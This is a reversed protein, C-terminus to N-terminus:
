KMAEINNEIFKIEDKSLGYKKYLQQDIEKVSKTWDIDSNESFDQLPVYKWKNSPNNQTVKLIGVMARTFKSKVYKLCAVAEREKNFKGISLFTQTHGEGPYGLEPYGIIPTKDVEGIAGSGNSNPLLVKYKDLNEHPEIYERKIYKVVRANNERGLLCVYEEGDKPEEDFFIEPLKEFANTTIDYLHGKSVKQKVEPYDEHLKNTFSYSFSSYMISSIPIFEKDNVKKFTTRLEEHPTYVGIKGFNKKSDRYTIAIGGTISTNPFIKKGDPEYGVVKLHPDNLMKKNWSKPTKGANFLFRGPTVFTVKEALKFSEDMFYNYIPKDSTNKIEEQYPPNGIVVDFKMNDGYINKLAEELNGNKVDKTLNYEVINEDSIGEFDSMIFNRAINYIINTPCVAYVQNEIIHKLRDHPDEIKDKLGKFLREITGTIFLGSKTYLDIFKTDENKFINPNEKELADIMYDVVPEPTYRQNTQQPPIYDFISEDQSTEFYNSLEHKKEMFKQISANFVPKNFFGLYEKEEGTSEDIYTFGDRLKQFEPISISTLEKFTEPEINEEFNDVTTNEDGYAMLFAPITRTFGRLHERVEDETTKKKKEERDELSEKTVKEFSENANENVNEYFKQTSRQIAKDRAEELEQKLTEDDSEDIKEQYSKHINEQENLIEDRASNVFNTFLDTMEKRKDRIKAKTYDSNDYINDLGSDAVTLFDDVIKQTEVIEKPFEDVYIKPGFLNDTESEVLEDPIDVKGREDVLPNTNVIDRKEVHWKNKEPPIKNLIDMVEQPAAFIRSINDFLLNSMFGQNVVERAKNEVPITLVDTAAIRYMSGEDDEALVPFFNLLERINEKSEDSTLPEVGSLNNAFEEYLVLTREPAFDFVYANEKRQLKGEADAYEHPNQSRFAAQFYLAPSKINSLILVGTWEPVTVGTTLQGCSLTITRDNEAIAKKVKEYSKGSAEADLAEDEFINEPDPYRKGDGAAIVVKYDKFVPHKRLLKEMAKVSNVRNFLWLTHKLEQRYETEAFPFRGSALNDLFQKVEDEYIFRNNPGVRFFENLDFTYDYNEEGIYKGEKIDEIVLNGMQYTFLNLQPLNAYPNSGISYDWNEKAKQEDAYTWNFIQESSFKGAELQKFPTGSLHLTFKRQVEDLARDTKVTDVGEHAEDIILLDWTREKIWRLKEYDGGAFKAGKLDQLSIFALLKPDKVENSIIYDMFEDYSLTGTQKLEDTGAVFKRSKDKHAIFKTFDEYWSNAVAPRNTVVLTSISDLRLMLDYATLTKGFRPKANWLFKKEEDDTTKLYNLTAEVAAEQESRLQYDTGEQNVQVDEYDLNIFKDTLIEAEEPKGDFYFWERASQNFDGRKIGNQVFFNHLDTDHFWKGNKQQARRIFQTKPNLGASGVQERIRDETARITEGVKIYGDHSPAEPLTYAYIKRNINHYPRVLNKQERIDM